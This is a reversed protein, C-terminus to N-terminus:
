SFFAAYCINYDNHCATYCASEIDAISYSYKNNRPSYIRISSGNYSIAGLDKYHEPLVSEWHHSLFDTCFKIRSTENTDSIYINLMNSDINIRYGIPLYCNGNSDCSLNNLIGSKMITDHNLYIDTGNMSFLQKMEMLIHSISDITQNIKHKYMAKSYGAIGGVSLVGIIALVGLMEVMSRGLQTNKLLKM